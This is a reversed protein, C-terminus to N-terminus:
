SFIFKANHKKILKSFFSASNIARTKKDQLAPAHNLKLPSNVSIIYVYHIDLFMMWGKLFCLVVQTFFIAFWQFAISFKLM